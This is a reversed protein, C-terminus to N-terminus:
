ARGGNAAAHNLDDPIWAAFYNKDVLKEEKEYERHAARMVHGMSIPLRERAALFAANLAINRINGGSLNLRGLVEWDMADRPASPPFSRLWIETRAEVAPLPFKIIFRLRRLFASDINSKLNTALIALGGYDEMQQLLYAVEINAYRDHSDKVESRKGFLAEAEDFFLVAGTREAIDFVRRLNKETEGIYKSVVTSLDVRYLDLDLDNAVVEAASTKGTGSPGTFLGSIGQGRSLKEGFGWDAYVVRRHALQATLERLQAETQEPLVLDSWTQRPIVRRAVAELGERGRRRCLERLRGVFTSSSGLESQVAAAEAVRQCIAQAGLDFNEVLADIEKAIDGELHPEISDLARRWLVSQEARSPRPAEVSLGVINIPLPYRSALITVTGLTRIADTLASLPGSETEAGPSDEVEIYLALQLFVADRTIFAPLDELDRLLAPLRVRRLDLGLRRSVESAMAARGCGPQGYLNLCPPQGAALRDETWRHLGEVTRQQTGSLDAEPMRDLAQEVQPSPHNFGLLYGAVREDVGIEAFLTPPEGTALLRGRRLTAHPQLSHLAAPIESSDSTFLRLALEGTPYPLDVDGQACALKYALSPDLRPGLALLLVDREFSTLRFRRVLLESPPPGDLSALSERSAALESEATALRASLAQCEPDSVLFGRRRALSNADLWANKVGPWARQPQLGNHLESPQRMWLAERDLLLHLRKYELSLHGLNDLRWDAGTRRDATVETAQM